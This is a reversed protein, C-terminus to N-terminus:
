TPDFDYWLFNYSQENMQVYIVIYVYVNHEGM